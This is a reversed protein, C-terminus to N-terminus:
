GKVNRGVRKEFLITEDAEIYDHREM